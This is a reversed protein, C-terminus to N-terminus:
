NPHLLSQLNEYGMANLLKKIRVKLRRHYGHAQWKSMNIGPLRGAEEATMGDKYMARLFLRDKHTLKVKDPINQSIHEKKYNEKPASEAFFWQGIEELHEYKHSEAITSNYNKETEEDEFAQTETLPTKRRLYDILLNRIVRSIYTTFNVKKEKNYSKFRAFNDRALQSKIYDEADLRRNESGIGYRSIWYHITKSCEGFWVGYFFTELADEVPQQIFEVFTQTEDDAYQRVRQWDQESLSRHVYLLALPILHEERGCRAIVWDKLVSANQEVLNRARKSNM